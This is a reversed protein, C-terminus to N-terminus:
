GGPRRERRSWKLGFELRIGTASGGLCGKGEQKGEWNGVKIMDILVQSPQIGSLVRGETSGCSLSGEEM